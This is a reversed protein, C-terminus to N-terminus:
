PGHLVGGHETRIRHDTQDETLKELVTAQTELITTQRVHVENVGKAFRGFNENLDELEKVVSGSQTSDAPIIITALREFGWLFIGLILVLATLPVKVPPSGNKGTPVSVHELSDPIKM